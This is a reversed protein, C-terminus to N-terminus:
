RDAPPRPASCPEFVAKICGGRYEDFMRYVDPAADLPFRHTVIREIPLRERLQMACLEDLDSRVPCEGISLSLNKAYAEAPSFAFSGETHVGAISLMGGSRLIAFALRIAEASGVAELVVAVGEGGSCRRVEAAIEPLARGGGRDHVISIPTAGFSAALALRDPVADLAVISPAGLRRSALIASLGVAGLGVVAVPTTAGVGARAAIFNGTAFVDGLLLAEVPSLGDPRRVLTTDALPVRVLGAQAGELGQGGEIRGL